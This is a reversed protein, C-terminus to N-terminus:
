CKKESCREGFILYHMFVTTFLITLIQIKFIISNESAHLDIVSLADGGFALVPELLFGPGMVILGSFIGKGFTVVWVKFSFLSYLLDYLYDSNQTIEYRGFLNVGEAPSLVSSSKYNIVAFCSIAVFCILFLRARSISYIIYVSFPTLYLLYRFGYDTGNSQWFVIISM